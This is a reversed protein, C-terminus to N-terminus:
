KTTTQRLIAVVLQILFPCDDECIPACLLLFGANTNSKFVRLCNHPDNIDVRRIQSAFQFAAPLLALIYVFSVGIGLGALAFLAVTAGYFFILWHKTADGLRLATSKVGILADDEKDQHAYITDYGLTWFIGAAYILGASVSLSDAIATFGMLAGWNFTLGLWAQPWYTIRKMFPYIAVLALSGVGLLITLENLQLLILLGILCLGVCLAGAQTLTVEGAPIPRLATRDVQADFDRDAIDNFVCGASRMVYAGIGFLIALFVMHWGPAQISALALGWLCPIYLLWVGVPRDARMLRLYPRLAAPAHMVWNNPAADPTTASPETMSYSM